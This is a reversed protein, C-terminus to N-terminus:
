DGAHFFDGLSEVARGLVDGVSVVQVLDGSPNSRVAIKGTPLTISEPASAPTRGEAPHTIEAIKGPMAVVKGLVAAGDRMFIVMDGESLSHRCGICNARGDIWLTEGALLGLHPVEATTETRGLTNLDFRNFTGLIVFLAFLYVPLADSMKTPSEESNLSNFAVGFFVTLIFVALGIGFATQLFFATPHAISMMKGQRDVLYASFALPVVVLTALTALGRVGTCYAYIRDNGRRFTLLDARLEALASRRTPNEAVIADLLLEANELKATFSFIEGTKIAFGFSGGFVPIVRGYMKVIDAFRAIAVHSGRHDEIRDEYVFIKSIATPRVFKFYVVLQFILLLIGAPLARALATRVEPESASVAGIAMCIVLIAFFVAFGFQALALRKVSSSYELIHRPKEIETV